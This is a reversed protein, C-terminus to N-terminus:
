AASLARREFMASIEKGSVPRSFFYGQIEDVATNGVILEYEDKTEVGEMVVLLGLDASLRTIGSLLRLARSDKELGRLFSRDIKIKNLPLSHLYSLSSYGTGFDDLSIRVGLQRLDSLVSRTMQINQLLATETLEIELRHPALGAELLAARVSEVVQRDRFHLASVNVAVRIDSPWSACAQCAKRLVWDDLRLILGMEEAVPVFVSPPVRGRTPHNWRTLAECGSFRAGELNYIPQFHLEFEDRDFALRLDFELNRRSQAKVEMIPEFFRWTNRGEAKAQYLAMDANRLLSSIDVGTDSAIAIGVSAGIGINHDGIEYPKSLADIVTLSLGALANRDTMMKSLVVFEDGGFRAVLDIPSTAGLLREAVACLLQDGVAHGLTDNVQKFQDLDVFLLACHSTPLTAALMSEARGHFETRNPLGTLPDFRALENIRAQAIRRETVDEFLVVAGGNGMPQLTLSLMRGNTTELQLEEMAEGAMRLRLGNAVDPILVRNVVGADAARNLLDEITGQARTRGSRFKLLADLRQNVVVVAGKKDLMALGHPMNNLATDFRDALLTVDRAKLVADLYVGRLRSSMSRMAFFFPTLVFVAILWYYGGALILAAAMPAGAFLILSNVLLNSAFNRGPIGVLYAMVTTFSSLRGFTDDSHAFTLVCLTGLLAVHTSAGVVYGIEWRRLAGIDRSPTSTRAFVGVALVRCGGLAAIAFAVLAIYPNLAEIAVVGAMISAALSGIWLSQVDAYMADVQAKYVDEPVSGEDVLPNSM